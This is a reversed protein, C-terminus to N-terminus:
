SGESSQPSGSRTSPLGALADDARAFRRTTWWTFALTAAISPLAEGASLLPLPGVLNPLGQLSPVVLVFVNNVTHLVIAAELGGTRTALWSMALAFVSLDAVYWPDTTGHLAVFVASSLLVAPWRWRTWRVLVQPLLGRALYEEAARQLPVLLAAVAIVAAYTEWGPWRAADFSWGDRLFAVVFQGTLVVVAAPLCTLLWRWRLRGVVSSLTGTSRGGVWRVVLWTAPILATVVAFVSALDWRPDSLVVDEDVSVGFLAATGVVAAITAATTIAAAAPLALLQLLPRWLRGGRVGAMELYSRGATDTPVPRAGPRVTGAGPRPLPPASM